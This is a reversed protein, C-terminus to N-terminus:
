KRRELTFSEKDNKITLKDDKIEATYTGNIEIVNDFSGCVCRLNLTLQDGDVSYSGGGSYETSNGGYDYTVIMRAEEDWFTLYVSVTLSDDEYAIMEWSSSNFGYLQWKLGCSSFFIVSVVILISFLIKKM